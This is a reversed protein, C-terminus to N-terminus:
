NEPVTGAPMKKFVLKGNESYTYDDDAENYEFTITLKGGSAKITLIEDEDDVFKGNKIEFSFSDEYAWAKQSNSWYYSQFVYTDGEVHKIVLIEDDGNSPDDPNCDYSDSDFIEGDLYAVFEYHTLGWIGTIGGFGTAGECSSLLCITAVLSLSLILKKM